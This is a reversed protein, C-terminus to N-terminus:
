VDFVRGDYDEHVHLPAKEKPVMKQIRFGPGYDTASEVVDGTEAAQERQRKIKIKLQRIQDENNMKRVKVLTMSFALLFCCFSIFGLGVSAIPGYECWTVAARETPEEAWALLSVSLRPKRACYPKEMPVQTGGIIVIGIASAAFIATGILAAQTKM